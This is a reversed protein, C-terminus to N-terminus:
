TAELSAVLRAIEERHGHDHDAIMSVLDAITIPKGGFMATRCLQAPALAALGAILEGRALAFDRAASRADQSPYDRERAVTGGDFGALEPRDEALMRGLRVLYGERELDRLHCAQEVLSFDGGAETRKRLLDDSKGSLAGELLAPMEALRELAQTLPLNPIDAANM